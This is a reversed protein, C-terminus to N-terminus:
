IYVTGIKGQQLRERYRECFEVAVDAADAHDLIIEDICYLDKGVKQFIGSSMPFFNFDHTWHLDGPTWERDTHNEESYDKYIVGQGLLIFKGHLYADISKEDYGELLSDIFQQPLVKNDLTSAHIVEIDYRDKDDGECIDYGWNLEEPTGTMTLERHRAKPDRIRAMIQKFVAEDQIFPEDINASGLNPGKLADPDDGSGIWITGKAGKHRLLFEHDTKNFKYKIGRGDLMNKLHPIITRKAMKYSPSVYMHPVGNNHLAIAISRKASIGTKGFGYGAVLARIYAKSEYWQRQPAFMGGKIINRDGDIVPDETRWMGM